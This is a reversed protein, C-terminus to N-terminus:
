NGTPKEVSDIVLFERPAEEPVLKLGLQEQIATFIGPTSFEATPIPDAASFTSQRSDPDAYVLKLDYLGTLGTKDVVKRRGVTNFLADALM